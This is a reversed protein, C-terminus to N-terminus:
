ILLTPLFPITDPVDNMLRDTQGDDDNALHRIDSSLALLTDVEPRM